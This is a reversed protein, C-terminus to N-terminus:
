QRKTTVLVCTSEYLNQWAIRDPHAGYLDIYKMINLYKNDVIKYFELKDEQTSDIVEFYRKSLKHLGTITKM